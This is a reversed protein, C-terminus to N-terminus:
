ILRRGDAKLAAITEAPTDFLDIDYVDVDVDTDIDDQLQWQWTAGPIPRWRPPDGGETAGRAMEPLPAAALVLALGLALVAHGAAIRAEGGVLRASTPSARM